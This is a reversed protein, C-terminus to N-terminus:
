PLPNEGWIGRGWLYLQGLDSVCASVFGAEVQTVKIQDLAEIYIPTQTKEFAAAGIGLQLDVNSGSTYM